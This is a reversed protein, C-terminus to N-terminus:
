NGKLDKGRILWWTKTRKSFGYLAISDKPNNGYTFIDIRYKDFVEGLGEETYGFYKELTNADQGLRELKLKQVEGSKTVVEKAYRIGEDGLNQAGFSTETKPM